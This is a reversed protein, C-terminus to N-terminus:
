CARVTQEAPHTGLRGYRSVVSAHEAHEAFLCVGTLTKVKIMMGGRCAGAALLACRRRDASSTASAAEATGRWLQSVCVCVCRLRLLLDVTCQQQIGYDALTKADDLQQGGFV